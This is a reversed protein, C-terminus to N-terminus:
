RGRYISPKKMRDQDTQQLLWDFTWPEPGSPKGDKPKNGRMGYVLRALLGAADHDDDRTTNPFRLLRDLFDKAWPANRPLYIRKQAALARFAQGRQGKDGAVSMQTRLCYASARQQELDITPGLSKSIQGHEEGWEVPRYTLVFDIFQSIWKDSATQGTWYDVLYLDELMKPGHAAGVLHVTWDGGDATVAYDSAGYYRCHKPLEDYWQFWERRYYDGEEPSPRQQYLASWNRPTQTIREQELMERTYWDPWYSEGPKRGLIDDDREAIAQIAIVFWWEGDRAQIWGSEGNYGEPLIRGCIDDEHWRTNIIAIRGNPKLRTRLDSLYWNWTKERIVPSDADERSRFPDDIIAIDARRGAIGVGVGAARYQSAGMRRQQETGEGPEVSYSRVSRNDHATAVDFVERYRESEILGRTKRGFDDSLAQTHSASILAIGPM